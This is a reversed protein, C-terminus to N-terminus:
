SMCQLTGIPGCVLSKCNALDRVLWGYRAPEEPEYIWETDRIDSHLRGLVIFPQCQYFTPKKPRKDDYKNNPPRIPALM